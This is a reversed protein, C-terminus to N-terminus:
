NDFQFIQMFVFKIKWEMQITIVLDETFHVGTDFWLFWLWTVHHRLWISVNEMNSARQTPFESTMPSIGGCFFALSVSSQHKIQDAGSYITSNVITFSTIQSAMASM